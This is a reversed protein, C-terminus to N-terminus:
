KTEDVVPAIMIASLKNVLKLPNRTYTESTMIVRGNRHELTFFFQKNKSRKIRLKM